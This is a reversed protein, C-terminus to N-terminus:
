VLGLYDTLAPNRPPPNCHPRVQENSTPRTPVGASAGSGPRGIGMMVGPGAGGAGANSAGGVGRLPRGSRLEGADM